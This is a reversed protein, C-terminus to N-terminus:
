AKGSPTTPGWTAPISPRRIPTTTRRRTPFNNFLRVDRQTIGLSGGIKSFALSDSGPVILLGAGGLLLSPLVLKIAKM